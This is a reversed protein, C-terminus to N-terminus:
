KRFKIFVYTNGTLMLICNDQKIIKKKDYIKAGQLTCENYGMICKLVFICNKIAKCDLFVCDSRTKKWM